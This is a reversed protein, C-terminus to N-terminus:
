FEFFSHGIEPLLHSIKSIIRIPNFSTITCIQCVPPTFHCLLPERYHRASAPPEPSLWCGVCYIRSGLLHLQFHKHLNYHQISASIQPYDSAPHAATVAGCASFHSIHGRYRSLVLSSLGDHLFLLSLWLSHQPQLVQSSTLLSLRRDAADSRASNDGPAASM